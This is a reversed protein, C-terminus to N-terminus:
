ESSWTKGTAMPTRPIAEKLPVVPAAVQSGADHSEGSRSIERVDDDYDACIRM